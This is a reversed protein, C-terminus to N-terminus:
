ADKPKKVFVSLNVKVKPPVDKEDSRRIMFTDVFIVPEHRELLNIFNAFRNFDSSFNTDIQSERIYECESMGMGQYDDRARISFSDLDEKGALQRIEFTMNSLNDFSNVFGGLEDRLQKMEKDLKLKNDYDSIALAEELIQKKESIQQELKKIKNKQPMLVILNVLLLSIFFGFWISAIIILYKKNVAKM